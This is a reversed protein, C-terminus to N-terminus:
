EKDEKKGKDSVRKFLIHSSVVYNSDIEENTKIELEKKTLKVIEATVQFENTILYLTDGRLFWKGPYPSDGIIFVSDPKFQYVVGKSSSMGKIFEEKYKDFDRMQELGSTLQQLLNNFYSSKLYAMSDTANEYKAVSDKVMAILTNYRNISYDYIKQISEDSNELYISDIAWSGILMKAKNSNKKCGFSGLLVLVILSLILTRSKM